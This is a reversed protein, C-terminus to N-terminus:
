LKSILFMMINEIMEIYFPYIYMVVYDLPIALDKIISEQFSQINKKWIIYM